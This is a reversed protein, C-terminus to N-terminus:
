FIYPDNFLLFFDAAVCLSFVPPRNSEIWNREARTMGRIILGQRGVSTVLHECRTIELLRPALLKHLMYALCRDRVNYLSLCAEVCSSRRLRKKDSGNADFEFARPALSMACVVGLVGLDDSM